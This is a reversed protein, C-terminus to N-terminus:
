ALGSLSNVITSGLGVVVAGAAGGLAYQRGRSASITNGGQQSLGWVAGGIFFAALSGALGLWKLWALIDKAMAGGPFDSSPVPDEIQALLRGAVLQARGVIQTFM